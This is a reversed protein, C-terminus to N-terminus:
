NITTQSFLCWIDSLQYVCNYQVMTKLTHHTKNVKRWIPMMGQWKRDIRKDECLGCASVNSNKLPLPNMPILVSDHSLLPIPIRMGRTISQWVSGSSLYEQCEPVSERLQIIDCMCTPEQWVNGKKIMHFNFYVKCAFSIYSFARTQRSNNCEYKHQFGWTLIDDFAPWLYAM